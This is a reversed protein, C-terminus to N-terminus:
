SRIVLFAETAEGPVDLAFGASGTMVGINKYFWIQGMTAHPWPNNLKMSICIIDFLMPDIEHKYYRPLHKKFTGDKMMEPDKLASGDVWTFKSETMKSTNSPSNLEPPSVYIPKTGRGPM